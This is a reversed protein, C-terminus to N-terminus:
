SHSGGVFRGQGGRERGRGEGGCARLWSRAKSCRALRDQSFLSVVLRPGTVVFPKVNM